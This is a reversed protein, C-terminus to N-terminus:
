RHSRHRREYRRCERKSYAKGEVLLSGCRGTAWAPVGPLHYPFDRTCAPVMDSRPELFMVSLPDGTEDPLVVSHGYEHVSLICNFRKGEAASLGTMKAWQAPAFRQWCGDLQADAVVEGDEAGEAEMPGVQIVYGAACGNRAAVEAPSLHWYGADVALFRQAIPTGTVDQGQAVAPALCALVLLLTLPRRM